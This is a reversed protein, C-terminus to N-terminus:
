SVEVAAIVRVFLYNGTFFLAASCLLSPYYFLVEQTNLLYQDGRIRLKLDPSSKKRTETVRVAYPKM